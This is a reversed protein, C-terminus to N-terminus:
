LGRCPILVPVGEGDTGNHKEWFYSVPRCTFIIIFFCATSALSIISMYSYLLQKLPSTPAIRLLTVAFLNKILCSSTMYSIMVIFLLEAASVRERPGLGLASNGPGYTVGRISEAVTVTFIVQSILALVDDTGVVRKLIARAWLRLVMAIWTAACFTVAVGKLRSEGPIVPTQQQRSQNFIHYFDLAFLCSPLSESVAAVRDGINADRFIEMTRMNTVHAWTSPATGSHRAIVLTRADTRSLLLALTLGTVGAGVVLIDVEVDKASRTTKSGEM